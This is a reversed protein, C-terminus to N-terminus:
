RTARFILSVLEDVKGATQEMEVRESPLLDQSRSVTTLRRRMSSLEDALGMRRRNRAAMEPSKGM